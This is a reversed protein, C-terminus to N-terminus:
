YCILLPVMGTVDVTTVMPSKQLLYICRDAVEKSMVEKRKPSSEVHCHSCAQNCYIGINLQLSQTPKRILESVNTAKLFDHFQPVGLDDLARQRQLREEKTLAKQGKAKLAKQASQFQEDSLM